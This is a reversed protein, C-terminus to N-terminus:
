TIRNLIGRACCFCRDCSSSCRCTPSGAATPFGHMHFWGLSRHSIKPCLTTDQFLNTYEQLHPGQALRNQEIRTNTGM